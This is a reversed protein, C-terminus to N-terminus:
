NESYSMIYAFCISSFYMVWFALSLLVLLCALDTVPPPPMLLFLLRRLM